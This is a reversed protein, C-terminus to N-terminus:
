KRMFAKAIAGQAPPIQRFYRRPMDVIRLMGLLACRSGTGIMENANKAHLQPRIKPTM